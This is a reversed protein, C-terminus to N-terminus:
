ILEEELQEPSSLAWFDMAYSGVYLVYTLMLGWQSVKGLLLIGSTELFSMASLPRRQTMRSQCVTIPVLAVLPLFNMIMQRYKAIVHLEGLQEAYPRGRESTLLTSSAWTHISCTVAFAISVFVHILTSWWPGCFCVGALSFAFAAVYGYRLSGQILGPSPIKPRKVVPDTANSSNTSCTGNETETENAECVEVESAPVEIVPEEPLELPGDLIQPVVLEGYLWNSTMLMVGAVAFGVRLVSRNPARQCVNSLSPLCWSRWCPRYISLCAALTGLAWLLALFPVAAVSLPRGAMPALVTFVALAAASPKVWPAVAALQGDVNGLRLAKEGISTQVVVREQPAPRLVEALTGNLEPISKLGFVRVVSGIAPMGEPVAEELSSFGSEPAEQKPVQKASDPETAATSCTSRTDEKPPPRYAAPKPARKEEKESERGEKAEDLTAKAVQPADKGKVARPAQGPGFITPVGSPQPLDM